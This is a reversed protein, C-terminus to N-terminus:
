TFFDLFLFFINWVFKFTKNLHLVSSGVNHTFNICNWNIISNIDFKSPFGATPRILIVDLFLSLLAPWIQHDSIFILWRSVFLPPADKLRDIIDCHSASTNLARPSSNTAPRDIPWCVSYKWGLRILSFISREARLTIWERHHKWCINESQFKKLWVCTLDLGTPRSTQVSWRSDWRPSKIRTSNV